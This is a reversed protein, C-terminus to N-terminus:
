LGFFGLVGSAIGGVGSAVAASQMGHYAAAEQEFGGVNINTQQNILQKTLNGQAMSSRYLSIATGQQKLGAGAVEAQQAGITQTIQRQAQMEQIKGSNESINANTQAIRAATGYDAAEMLDGIGGFISNVASGIMEGPM